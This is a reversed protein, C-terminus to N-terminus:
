MFMFGHAHILDHSGILSWLHALLSPSFIPYPIGFRRELWHWSPIRITTVNAPYTPERGAGGLDSTLLTVQHGADSLGRIELDVANELGGVHPLAHHCVVLIRQTTGNMM